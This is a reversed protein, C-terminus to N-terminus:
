KTIVTLIMFCVITILTTVSLSSSVFNRQNEDDAFVPLVYPPPLIFMINLAPDLVAGMGVAHVVFGVAVRLVAMILMRALVVKCVAKWPIDNFVLDYGITILIVAGTPASVFDTCADILSSIGSPELARYIGTAGLIVGCIIAIITPSHLMESVLKGPETKHDSDMGLLIKYLTFVFLVQGLDVYAFGSINESGYLLMYLSYGLMGAEFGTTLFPVFRSGKAFLKGMLLAAFCAAYMVATIIINNVSYSMTAFANLMVAPLTINVVVSKLANIGERSLLSSRRALMGIALMLVVPVITKLIEIM